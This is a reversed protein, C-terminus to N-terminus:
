VLLSVLVALGMAVLVSTLTGVLFYEAFPRQKLEEFRAVSKAGVVLAVAEWRGAVGLLLVIWRELTGILSGAELDEGTSEPGDDPLVSRVVANGGEHAFAFASVYVAGATVAAWPIQGDVGVAAVAPGATWAGPAVLAWAGLVVLLHAAQDLLFVVASSERRRRRVRASVADVLFHSAGVVGVVVVTERNLLPVLAVAHVVVVIGAHALLPVLRHKAAALEDTQFVFDGLVHGLVLLAVGAGAPGLGTLWGTV